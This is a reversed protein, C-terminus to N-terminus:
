SVVVVVVNKLTTYLLEGGLSAMLSNKKQEHFFNQMRNLTQQAHM